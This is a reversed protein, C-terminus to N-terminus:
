ETHRTTEDRQLLRLPWPLLPMKFRIMVMKGDGLAPAAIGIKRKQRIQEAVRSAIADLLEPTVPVDGLEPIVPQRDRDSARRRPHTVTLRNDIEEMASDLEGQWDLQPLAAARPKASHTSM